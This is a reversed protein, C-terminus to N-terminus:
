PFGFFNSETEVDMELEILEILFRWLKCDSYIGLGLNHKMGRKMRGEGGRVESRGGGGAMFDLWVWLLLVWIWFM